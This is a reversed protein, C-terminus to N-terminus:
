AKRILAWKGLARNFEVNDTLRRAAKIARYAGDTAAAMSFGPTLPGIGASCRAARATTGYGCVDGHATFVIYAAM